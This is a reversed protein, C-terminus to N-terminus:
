EVGEWKFAILFKQGIEYEPKENEMWWIHGGGVECSATVGYWDRMMSIDTVTMKMYQPRGLKYGDM